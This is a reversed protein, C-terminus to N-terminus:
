VLARERSEYGARFGSAAVDLAHLGGSIVGTAALMTVIWPYGIAQSTWTGILISVRRRFWEFVAFRNVVAVRDCVVDLVVADTQGARWVRQDHAHPTTRLHIWRLFSRAPQFATISCRTFRARCVSVTFSFLGLVVFGMHSVSSYAVLRKVDPQVMAVLAGYIIGIVALTVIVGVM